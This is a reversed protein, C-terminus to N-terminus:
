SPSSSSSANAGPGPVSTSMSPSSAGQIAKLARARQQQALLKRRQRAAERLSAIEAAVDPPGTALTEVLIEAQLGADGPTGSLRHLDSLMGRELIRQM